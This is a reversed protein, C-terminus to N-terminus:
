LLFSLFLIFYEICMFYYCLSAAERLGESSIENPAFAAWLKDAVEPPINCDLILRDWASKDCNIVCEALKKDRDKETPLRAFWESFFATIMKAITAGDTIVEDGDRISEMTFPQSRGMINKIMGGIRGAEDEEQQRIM